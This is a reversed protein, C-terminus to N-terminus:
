LLHCHNTVMTVQRLQRSGPGTTCPEGWTTELHPGLACQNSLSDSHAPHPTVPHPLWPMLGDGLHSRGDLEESGTRHSSFLLSPDPSLLSVVPAGGAM